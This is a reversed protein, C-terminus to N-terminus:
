ARRRPCTSSATPPSTPISRWVTRAAGPETLVAEDDLAAALAAQAAREAHVWRARWPTGSAGRLGAQLTHCVETPDAWVRHRVRHDPDVIVPVGGVHVQTAGSSTVWQALVKSAPPEGLRLVLEPAHDRAFRAHRLLSDFARVVGDRGGVGARPDALVPWGTADSLAVVADPEGSGRGAVIVGRQVDISRVLAALEDPAVQPRSPHTRAGLPEPLPDPAGVLPERLPLNLHVPGPQPGATASM